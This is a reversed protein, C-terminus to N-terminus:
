AAGCNKRPTSDAIQSSRSSRSCSLRRAARWHLTSSASPAAPPSCSAAPSHRNQLDAAVEDLAEAPELAKERRGVAVDRRKPGVREGAGSDEGEHLAIVGGRVAEVLLAQGEVAACPKWSCLRARWRRRPSKMPM